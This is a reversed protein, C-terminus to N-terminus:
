RAVECAQRDREVVEDLVRELQKHVSRQRGLTEWEEAMRLQHEREEVNKADNAKASAKRCAEAQKPYEELRAMKRERSPWLNCGYNPLVIREPRHNGWPRSKLPGPNLRASTLGSQCAKLRKAESGLEPGCPSKVLDFLKALPQPQM